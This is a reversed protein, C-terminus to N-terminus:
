KVPDIGMQYLEDPLIACISWSTTDMAEFEDIYYKGGLKLNLEHGGRNFTGRKNFAKETLWKTVGSKQMHIDRISVGHAKFVNRIEDGGKKWIYEMNSLFVYYDINHETCYIREWKPGM